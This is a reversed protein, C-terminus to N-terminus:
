RASEAPLPLSDLVRGASGEAGLDGGPIAPFRELVFRMGRTPRVLVPVLRDKFRIAGMAYGVEHRVWESGAAEPSVLVVMADSEELAKGSVLGWNEGPFLEAGSWVKVGAEALRASLELAYDLDAFAHSIYIQM